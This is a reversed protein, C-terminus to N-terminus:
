RLCDVSLKLTTVDGDSSVDHGPAKGKATMPSGNLVNVAVENSLPGTSLPDGNATGVGDKSGM